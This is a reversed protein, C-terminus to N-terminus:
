FNFFVEVSKKKKVAVGTVKKKKKKEKTDTSKKDNEDVSDDSTKELAKVKKKLEEALTPPFKAFTKFAWPSTNSM